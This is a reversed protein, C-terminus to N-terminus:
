ADSTVTLHQALTQYSLSVLDSYSIRRVTDSLSKPPEHGVPLVLYAEDRQVHLTLGGGCRIHPTEEVQYAQNFSLAREVDNVTMTRLPSREGSEGTTQAADGGNIRWM